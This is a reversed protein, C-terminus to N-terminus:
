VPSFGAVVWTITKLGLWPVIFGVVPLFLPVLYSGFRAAAVRNIRTGDKREIWDIHGLAAPGCDPQTEDIHITQIGARDLEQDLELDLAKSAEKKKDLAAIAARVEPSDPIFDFKEPAKPPLERHATPVPTAPVFDFQDALCKGVRDKVVKSSALTEFETYKIRQQYIASFSRYSPLSCAAAGIIGLVIGVRRMGERFRLAM